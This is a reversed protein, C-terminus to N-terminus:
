VLSPVLSSLLSQCCCTGLMGQIFDKSVNLIIEGVIKQYKSVILPDSSVVALSKVRQILMPPRSKVEANRKNGFEVWTKSKHLVFEVKEEDKTGKLLFIWSYISFGTIVAALLGIGDLIMYIWHLKLYLILVTVALFVTNHIM